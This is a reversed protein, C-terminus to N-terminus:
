LCLCILLTFSVNLPLVGLAQEIFSKAAMMEATNYYALTNAVAM